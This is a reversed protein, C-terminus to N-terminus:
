LLGRRPVNLFYYGIPNTTFLSRALEPESMCHSSSVTPSVQLEDWNVGGWIKRVYEWGEM